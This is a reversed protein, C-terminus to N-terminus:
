SRQWSGSRTIQRYVIGPEHDTHPKQLFSFAGESGPTCNEQEGSYRNPEFALRVQWHKRRGRTM